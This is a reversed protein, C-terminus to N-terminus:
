ASKSKAGNRRPLAGKKLVMVIDSASAVCLYAVAVNAGDRSFM